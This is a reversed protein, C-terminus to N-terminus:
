NLNVNLIAMSFNRFYYNLYVGTFSSQNIKFKPKTDNSFLKPFLFIKRERFIRPSDYLKAM